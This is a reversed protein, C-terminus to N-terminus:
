EKGMHHSGIEEALNSARKRTEESSNETGMYCTVFIRSALEKPDTPIYNSSSFSLYKYILKVPHIVGECPWILSLIVSLGKLLRRCYIELITSIKSVIQILNQM